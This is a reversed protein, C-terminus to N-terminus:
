VIVGATKADERLYPTAWSRTPHDSTTSAAYDVSGCNLQHAIAVAEKWSRAPLIDDPGSNHIVFPSSDAEETISWEDYDDGAIGQLPLVLQTYLDTM